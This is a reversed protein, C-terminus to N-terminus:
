GREMKEGRATEGAQEVGTEQGLEGEERRREGEERGRGGRPLRPAHSPRAGPTSACSLHGTVAGRPSTHHCLAVGGTAGAALCMRLCCVVRGALRAAESRRQESASSPPAARRQESLARQEGAVVSRRESHSNKQRPLRRVPAAPHHAGNAAATTAHRGSPPGSGAPTSPQCFLCEAGVRLCRRGRGRRLRRGAGAAGWWLRAPATVFM